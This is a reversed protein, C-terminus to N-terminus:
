STTFINILANGSHFLAVFFLKPFPGYKTGEEKPEKEHSLFNGLPNERRKGGNGLFMFFNTKGEGGKKAWLYFIFSAHTCKM